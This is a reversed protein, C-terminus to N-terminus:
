AAARADDGLRGSLADIEIALAEVLPAAGQLDDMHAFVNNAAVVAAPGHQQRIQEATAQDLFADLTEIGAARAASAVAQAPEIGLVRLGRQQFFKLFTGDNSGIDVVLSDAGASM